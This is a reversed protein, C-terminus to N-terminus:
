QDRDFWCNTTSIKINALDYIEQLSRKVLM